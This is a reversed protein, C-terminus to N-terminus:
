VEDGSLETPIDVTTFWKKKIAKQLLLVEELKFLKGIFLYICIGAGGALFGQTAIGWFKTMDVMYAIPMKLLQIVLGMLLAALSIKYLFHLISLEDLSKIHRVRLTIWLIAVQLVMSLSFSFALGVIGYLDKFLLAFIINVLASIVAAIFPSWTDHFAYFARSLLPIICQAFLSLSFFALTNATLKTAEWDFAGTGFLVRVIQARLLLFIMTIPIIFFLIQRIAQSLHAVFEDGKQESVLQSLTPFAAIAFSYGIIGIPFYQINSAFHFISLSGAMLTSAITTMVLLNLQTTALSMTRPIMLKGINRVHSNNWLWVWQYSFHYHRLAPLQIVLHFLAGVIVGYALGIPGVYPVFWIAGLIIGINYVIPTLSYILFARFSQLMSSFIGSIGLLIPSLFMIRTMIITLSLKEDTFGPVVLPMIYPTVIILVTCFVVLFLGLINLVSNTVKLAETSDKKMLKTFVPIFGASIAGVVILNYVLDPIRFAAYYADLIDGAGFLHAFIRDRLFGMLRSIFSAAGLIIAAGTISKSQTLLFKKIM